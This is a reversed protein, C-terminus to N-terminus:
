TPSSRSSEDDTSGPTPKAAKRKAKHPNPLPKILWAVFQMLAVLALLPAVFFIAKPKIVLIILCMGVGGLFWPPVRQSLSLMQDYALWMAGLVIGVRQCVSLLFINDDNVGQLYLAVSAALFVLSLIGLLIRRM